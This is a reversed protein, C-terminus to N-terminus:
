NNNKNNKKIQTTSHITQTYIHVTINGGPTLEARVDHNEFFFISFVFNMNQNEKTVFM